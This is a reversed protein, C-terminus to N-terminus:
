PNFGHAKLSHAVVSNLKYVGVMDAQVLRGGSPPTYAKKGGKGVVNKSGRMVAKVYRFSDSTYRFLNVWKFAFKSVLLDCKLHM